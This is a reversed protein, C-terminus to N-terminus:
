SIRPSRRGCTGRAIRDSARRTTSFSLGDIGAPSRRRHQRGQVRLRPPYSPYRGRNVSLDGAADWGVHHKRPTFLHTSAPESGAEEEQISSRRTRGHRRNSPSCSPSHKLRILRSSRRPFVTAFPGRECTTQCSSVVRDLPASRSGIRRRNSSWFSWWLQARFATSPRISPM